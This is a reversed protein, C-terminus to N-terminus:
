LACLVASFSATPASVDQYITRDQERGDGVLRGKYREFTGDPFFKKKTFMFSRIIKRKNRIGSFYVPQLVEKEKFLQLIEESYAIKEADDLTAFVFYQDRTRTSKIERGSRTRVLQQVTAEYETTNEEEIFDFVEDSVEDVAVEDVAELEQQNVYENIQVPNHVEYQSDPEEVAVVSGIAEPITAQAVTGECAISNMTSIVQDTMKMVVFNSSRVRAKTVLSFLIWSGNVNASQYLAICARSREEDM